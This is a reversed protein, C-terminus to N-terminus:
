PTRKPDVSSQVVFRMLEVKDPISTNEVSFRGVCHMGAKELVRASAINTAYCEAFITQANLETFAYALVAKVAETTYGNGWYGRALGYGFDYDGLEARSPRGIGIWGIVEETSRLIISCNHSFRPQSLNHAITAVIWSQTQESTEPGFDMFYVAEPDSRFAHLGPFDSEEIDRILLRGTILHM